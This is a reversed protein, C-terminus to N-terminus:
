LDFCKNTTFHSSSFFKFDPELTCNFVKDTLVVAPEDPFRLQIHVLPYCKRPYSLEETIQLRYYLTLAISHRGFDKVAIAFTAGHM